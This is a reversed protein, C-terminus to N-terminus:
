IEDYLKEIAYIMKSKTFKKKFIEGSTEGMWKRLERNNALRDIAYALKEVNSHPVVIGNVGDEIVEPIGGVNSGIVPKKMAISEILALGLGEKTISPLISIDAISLLQMIEKRFGLLIARTFLDQDRIQSLIADKLPGTGVILLKLNQNNKFSQAFANILFSHGKHKTLSAIVVLVIDNKNIDLSKKLTDGKNSDAQINPSEIGNYILITKNRKVGEEKIIFEQVAGSICIIKDTVLSLIKEIYPNQKKITHVHAIKKPIGGIFASIRGFTNAFYGHTHVIDINHKKLLYTLKLISSPNHYNTLGLIKLEIGERKIEEAIEGGSALCWVEINYKRADISTVITKIVKELGGTELDQVLHVINKKKM